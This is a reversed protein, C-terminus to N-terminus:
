FRAATQYTKLQNLSKPLPLERVRIQTAKWIAQAVAPAVPPLTVEGLGQPKRDSEIIVVEVKPMERMSLLQFDNFNGQKVAGNEFNLQSNFTNTLAFAMSGEVINEMINPNIPEGCDVSCVIRSVHFRKDALTELELAIAVYSEYANERGIYCATSFGRYIGEAAPQNWGAQTVAADIVSLALPKDALLQRRFAVQDEGLHDALESIFSEIFFISSTSGVTRMYSLPIAQDVDSSEVHLSPFTYTTNYIGDVLTEDWSRDFYNQKGLSRYLSQGVVRAEIGALKGESLHATMRAAACPRYYSHRIDDERSRIVKVPKNVAKSAYAAHLVFDPAYKRGFSGGLFVTPVIIKEQPLSFVKGLVERVKDQGQIPGWVEIEGARVHVTANVPEMTAHTIYPSYYNQEFSSPKNLSSKDLSGQIVVQANEAQLLGALAQDIASSNIDINGQDWEISLEDLAKKASWYNDAVAIVADPAEVIAELKFKEKIAQANNIKSLKGNLTPAMKIAGTLMDKVTVDIGYVAEGTVKPPTDLKNLAQGFLGGQREVKLHQNIKDKDIKEIHEILSGYPFSQGSQHIVQGSKTHFEGVSLGTKEAAALLFLTRAESGAQVLRDHFKVVSMSGGVFQSLVEIGAGIVRYADRGTVFEVSVNQWNIDLADALIQPLGTYVGQGSEAQSLGLIISGNPSIRVWDNIEVM